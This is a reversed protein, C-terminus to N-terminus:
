HLGVIVRELGEVMRKCGFGASQHFGEDEPRFGSPEMRVHTGGRTAAAETMPEDKLLTELCRM